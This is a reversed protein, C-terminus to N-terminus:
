KLELVTGYLNWVNITDDTDLDAWRRTGAVAHHTTPDVYTIGHTSRPIVFFNLMRAPIGPQWVARFAPGRNADHVM